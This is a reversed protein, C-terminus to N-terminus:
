NSEWVEPRDVIATVSPPLEGAVIEALTEGGEGYVVAGSGAVGSNGRSGGDTFVSVKM